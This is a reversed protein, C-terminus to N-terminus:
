ITSKFLEQFFYFQEDYALYIATSFAIFPGLPLVDTRKIKKLTLAIVFVTCSLLSSTMLLVSVGVPGAILGIAAFLKVDGFGLAEKKYIFRGAVGIAFMCGGGILAGFFPAHLDSHYPLYGFSAVALLITFQDPIIMYKVDAISIELLLWFVIITILANQWACASLSIASLSFGVSFIAKWPCNRIRPRREERPEEKYDCLWRVPLRNFVTVASCGALIGAIISM